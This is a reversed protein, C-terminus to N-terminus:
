QQAYYLGLLIDPKKLLALIETPMSLPTLLLEKLFEM